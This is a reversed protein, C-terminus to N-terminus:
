YAFFNISNPTGNESFGRVHPVGGAGAGTIIEPTADGFVSGIAVFVGGRFQATAPRSWVAVSLGLLRERTRVVAPGSSM